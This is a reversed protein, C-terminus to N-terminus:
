KGKAKKAKLKSWKLPLRIVYARAKVARITRNLKTAIIEPPVNAEAMQRFRADEEPTWRSNRTEVM